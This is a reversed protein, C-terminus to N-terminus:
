VNEKKDWKRWFVGLGLGMGAWFLWWPFPGPMHGKLAAPGNWLFSLIIILGSLVELAWGARGLSFSGGGGIRLAIAAGCGILGLSVIVPVWVPGVWLVPIMFLVDLTFISPPWGLIAWLWVYYLIDWVGFIVMYFAFRVWGRRDALWAAAGILILTVAERIIEVLIPALGRMAPSLPFAFGGPYYLKRLYVVVAAEVFAFAAALICAAILQRRIHARDAM